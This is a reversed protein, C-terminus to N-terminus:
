EKAALALRQAVSKHQQAARPDGSRDYVEALAQHIDDRFPSIEAARQLSRLSDALEGAQAQTMGLLLWDDPHRRLQVLRRLATQAAALKGQGRRRWTALM